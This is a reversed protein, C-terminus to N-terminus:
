TNQGGGARGDLLSDPIAEPLYRHEVLDPSLRREMRLIALHMWLLNTGVLAFLTM